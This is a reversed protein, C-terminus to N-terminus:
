LWCGWCLCFGAHGRRPVEEARRVRVVRADLRCAPVLGLWCCPHARAALPVQDRCLSAAWGAGLEARRQAAHARVGVLAVVHDVLEADDDAAAGGGPCVDARGAAAEAQVAAAPALVGVVEDLDADRGALLASVVAGVWSHQRRREARIRIAQRRSDMIGHVGALPAPPIVARRPEPRTARGGRRRLLTARPEAPRRVRPPRVRTTPPHVRVGLVLRLIIGVVRPILIMDEAGVRPADRRPPEQPAICPEELVPRSSTSLRPRRRPLNSTSNRKSLLEHTTNNTGVKALRRP